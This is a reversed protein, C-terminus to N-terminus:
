VNEIFEIYKSKLSNWSIQESYENAWTSLDSFVDPNDYLFDIREAVDKPACEYLNIKNRTMIEKGKIAKVRLVEPVWRNQPDCDSVIIPMGLSLAENMPLCLGGFKRPIVFASEDRYLDRNSGVKGYVSKVKSGKNIQKIPFQSRVYLKVNSSVHNMAEVSIITGNRDEMAVTGATHLLTELRDRHTFSFVDRDIPPPLIEINRGPLQSRIDEIHWESPALFLDPEPLGNYLSYDLFEYNFQLITKVGLEKARSFLWYNYPTECTLVVDVSQLFDDLIRDKPQDISPYVNDNWMRANPYRSMDPKSGSHRSLDVVLTEEPNLHKWFSYTQIALGTFDGRAILGLRRTGM